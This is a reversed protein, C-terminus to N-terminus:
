PLMCISSLVFNQSSLSLGLLLRFESIVAVQSMFLLICILEHLFFLIVSNRPWYRGACQNYCHDTRDLHLTPKSSCCVCFHYRDLPSCLLDLQSLGSQFQCSFFFSKGFPNMFIPSKLILEVKLDSKRTQKPSRLPSLDSELM